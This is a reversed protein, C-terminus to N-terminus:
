PTAEIALLSTIIETLRGATLGDSEPLAEGAPRDRLLRLANAFHRDGERAAGGARALNGLAFHALVLEPRLYIARQLALRAQGDDGLEQVVVARLYHGSADLKDAALWRDCWALADRLQGQNALARALLSYEEPASPPPSANLLTDSADAYRGDQYFQTAIAAPSSSLVSGTSAEATFVPSPEPPQWPALEEIPPAIFVESETVSPQWAQQLHANEDGRRYLIVGPFNQIKFGPFMAQSVESPSVVLWGGDVLSRRLNGVVKRMQPLAFYMMVNRCFILDMANTDTTLSPFVDEVLNLHAFTVRQKIEPLIAYRGEPTRRFYREKYGPPADRFSWEGYVGAAAKKLFGDNIDTALITVRWDALDPIVQSLLIALSYAEEGTCCAASWLRLRREGTRRRLLILEPLVSTTLVEFTKPERFFYTEGVTLQSALVQWQAKTPAASSLWEGCTEANAFGLEAAARSLGRRLDSWREPPFHLGMTEVIRASVRSLMEDPAVSTGM